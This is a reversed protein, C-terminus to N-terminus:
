RMATGLTGHYKGKRGATPPSMPLLPPMSNPVSNKFWSFPRFLFFTSVWPATHIKVITVSILGHNISVGLISKSTMSLKGKSLVTYPTMNVKFLVPTLSRTSLGPSASKVIASLQLSYWWWSCFSFSRQLPIHEGKLELSEQSNKHVTTLKWVSSFSDWKHLHSISIISITNQM